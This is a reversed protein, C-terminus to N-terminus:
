AVALLAFLNAVDVVKFRIHGGLNYAPLRGDNVMDLLESEGIVLERCVQAPTFMDIASITHAPRIQM